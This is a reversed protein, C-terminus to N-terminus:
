LSFKLIEEDKLKYRKGLEELKKNTNKIVKEIDKKHSASQELFATENLLSPAKLNKISEKLKKDSKSSDFEIKQNEVKALNLIKKLRENNQELIDLKRKNNYYERIDTEFKNNEEM